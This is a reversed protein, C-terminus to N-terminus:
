VDGSAIDPLFQLMCEARSNVLAENVMSSSPWGTVMGL